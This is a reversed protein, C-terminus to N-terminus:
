LISKVSERIVLESPIVMNVLQMKPNKIRELLIRCAEAGIREKNVRVTTLAPISYEAIISDEYGLISVDSPVDVNIHRLYKMAGVAVNDNAGFVATPRINSEWLSKMAEYAGKGTFDCNRVWEPRFERGAEALALKYGELKESTSPTIDLGNIFAIDRHGMDLLYKIGTYAAYKANTYVCDVNAYNRAVVVTHVKKNLLKTIFDMNYLGGIVIVGDVRNNKVISPVEASDGSLLFEEILVGYPTNIIDNLLGTSVDHFYTDGENDFSYRHNSVRNIVRILGINLRKKTTLERAAVNPVYGLKEVAELVKYKTELKVINRGNLVLSVTSKSVGAHKAVDEITAM